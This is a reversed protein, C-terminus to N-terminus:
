FATHFSYPDLIYLDPKSIKEKLSDLNKDTASGHADLYKLSLSALQPGLANVAKPFHFAFYQFFRDLPADIMYHASLSREAVKTLNLRDTLTAIRSTAHAESRVPQKGLALHILFGLYLSNNPRMVGEEGVYVSQHYQGITRALPDSREDLNMLDPYLAHVATLDHHELAYARAEGMGQSGHQLEHCCVRTFEPADVDADVYGTSTGIGRAHEFVGLVGHTQLLGEVLAIDIPSELGLNKRMEENFSSGSLQKRTSQLLNLLDNVYPNHKIPLQSELGARVRGIHVTEPPNLRYRAIESDPFGSHTKAYAALPSSVFVLAAAGLLMERRAFEHGM